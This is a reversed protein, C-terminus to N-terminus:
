TERDDNPSASCPTRSLRAACPLREAEVDGSCRIAAYLKAATMAPMAPIRSVHSLPWIEGPVAPTPGTISMRMMATTPPRRCGMPGNMPASM